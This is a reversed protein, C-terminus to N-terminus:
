IGAPQQPADKPKNEEPAPATKKDRRLPSPQQPSARRLPAEPKPQASPAVVVPADRRLPATQQEVAVKKSQVIRALEDKFVTIRDDSLYQTIRDLTKHCLEEIRREGVRDKRKQAAEIGLVRIQNLQAFYDDAKPLREVAALTLQAAHDDTHNLQLRARALLAGRRAVTEILQSELIDIERECGLRIRDDAVQLTVEAELGPVFPRRALIAEGSHVDIRLIPHKPDVPISVEGQRDSLLRLSPPEPAPAPPKADEAKPPQGGPPQSPPTKPARNTAPMESVTVFLGRQPEAPNRGAVLKLHTESFEPRVLVALAEVRRRMNAGLPARFSSVVSAQVQIKGPEIPELVLYTWPVVQISRVVRKSDLFRFVPQLLDGPKLPVFKPDGLPLSGARITLTAWTADREADNIVLLPSFLRKILALAADPVDRREIVTEVSTPGL